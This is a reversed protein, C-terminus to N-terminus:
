TTTAIKGGKSILELFGEKSMENVREDRQKRGVVGEERAQRAGEEARVQAARVANFLKVVGRQATKKLRKEEEMLKGTEVGPTELGLVDTIRGKDLAQKKEQKLQTKAKQDLKADAIAKHTSAADKSRSLVPDPRKSTTLKTSLIKSISTAFADPDNRKKKSRAAQSSTISADADSASETDADQEAGSDMSVDDQEAEDGDSGEDQAANLATNRELEDVGNRGESPSEPHEKQAEPTGASKRLISKPKANSERVAINKQAPAEHDEDDESSSHYDSQKRRIKIKKKPRRVDEEANKRKKISAVVMTFVAVIM